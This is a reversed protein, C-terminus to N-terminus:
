ESKKCDMLGDDSIALDGTMDVEFDDWQSTADEPDPYAKEHGDQTTKLYTRSLTDAIFMETGRKYTVKIDYRQLRLLMRQLRKPADATPKRSIMELPKHDSEVIIQQGYVYQDFRECAFVM